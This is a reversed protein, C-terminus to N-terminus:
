GRDADELALRPGKRSLSLAILQPGPEVGAVLCGESRRTRDSERDELMPCTWGHLRLPPSPLMFCHRFLRRKCCTLRADNELSSATVM